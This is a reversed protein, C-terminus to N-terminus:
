IYTWLLGNIIEKAAMSKKFDEESINCALAAEEVSDFKAEEFLLNDVKSYGILSKIGLLLSINDEFLQDKSKLIDEVQSLITFIETFRYTNTLIRTYEKSLLNLRKEPEEQSVLIQAYMPKTDIRSLEKELSIITKKFKEPILEVYAVSLKHSVIKVDKSKGHNGAESFDGTSYWFNTKCVACTIADCGEGKEVVVGCTPCKTLSNVFTVSEVADSSCKHEEGKKQECKKCFTSLCSSCSFDENLFGPCILNMCKRTKLMFEEKKESHVKVKKIEPGFIINAVKLIVPPMNEVFFKQKEARLKEILFKEKEYNIISSSMELKLVQELLHLFKTRYELSVCLLSQENYFGKCTESPCALLKGNESCIDIYREICDRCTVKLCRKDSCRSSIDSETFCIQCSEMASISFTYDAKCKKM